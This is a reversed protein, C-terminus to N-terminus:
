KDLCGAAEAWVPSAMLESFTRYEEKLDPEPSLIHKRFKDTATNIGIHKMQEEWDRLISKEYVSQGSPIIVTDSLKMVEAAAESYFGLFFVVAKYDTHLKLQAIWRQMDEKSLSLPDFGHASGSLYDLNSTFSLLSKIKLSIDQNEKLYYIFESLEQGGGKQFLLLNVSFLELPIFLVKKRVALQFALSWSFLLKCANTLPSFVAYLFVQSEENGERQEGQENRYRKLIEDMVQQVPQYKYVSHTTDAIGQNQLERLQFSCRIKDAYEEPVFMDGLILIEISHAQLYDELSEKQSFALIEYSFEKKNKFYEMFRTVYFIDSDCVALIKKM